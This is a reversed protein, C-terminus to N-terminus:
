WSTTYMCTYIYYDVQDVLIQGAIPGRYRSIEGEAEGEGSGKRRGGGMGKGMGERERCVQKALHHLAEQSTVPEANPPLVGESVGPIVTSARMRM